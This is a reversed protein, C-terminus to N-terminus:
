VSYLLGVVKHLHLVNKFTNCEVSFTTVHVQNESIEQRHFAVGCLHVEGGLHGDDDLQLHDVNM